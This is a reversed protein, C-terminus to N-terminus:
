AARRQVELVWAPTARLYTEVVRVRSFYYMATLGQVVLSVVAMLGYFLRTAGEPNDLMQFLAPDLGQAALADRAGPDNLIQALDPNSVLPQTKEVYAKYVCYAGILGMLMLQNWGLLRPGRAEARRLLGAGRFEVVTVGLLLLGMVASERDFLGILLGGAAFVALSWASFRAFGVARQVKRWRARAGDLERLQEPSLVM